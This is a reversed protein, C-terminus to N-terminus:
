KTNENEKINKSHELGIIGLSVGLLVFLFASWVSMGNSWNPIYSYMVPVGIVYGTIAVTALLVVFSGAVSFIQLCKSPKVLLMFGSMAIALFNIASLFSPQGSVVSKVAGLKEKIFLEEIGISINFMKSATIIAMFLFIVLAALSAIYSSLEDENHIYRDISLLIVGSFIFCIASIFKMAPWNPRISVLSDIGSIWGAIVV